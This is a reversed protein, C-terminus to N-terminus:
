LQDAIIHRQIESTGELVTLAKADRFYKELPLDRSYGVAGMLHMAKSCIEVASESAFLKAMSAEKTFEQGHDILYCARWTLLRAADIATAMDALAFAIAQNTILPRGFQIRKRTYELATEYAARAIGIACVSVMPRSLDLAQMAVLFGTGPRGLLNEAPVRVNDLVLEGTQCARLGLKDEIKETSLGPSDAPIIFFDLGAYKKSPDTTALVVYLDAIGANSIYHKAGSILYGDKDKHAITSISGLDSGADPETIAMAGLRGKKEALLSLYKKKQQDTGGAKLCNTALMTGGLVTSMGACTVALEECLIAVSLSDLGSGGYERPILFSTFGEAAFRDVIKWDFHPSPMRDLDRAYPKMHTDAFQRAMRQLAIQEETLTFSIM